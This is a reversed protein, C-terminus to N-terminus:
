SESCKHSMDRALDLQESLRGCKSFLERHTHSLLCAGAAAAHTHLAYKTTGAVSCNIDQGRKRQTHEHAGRLRQDICLTLEFIHGGMGDICGDKNTEAGEAVHGGVRHRSGM